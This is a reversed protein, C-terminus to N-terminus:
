IDVAVLTDESLMSTWGYVSEIRRYPHSQLRAWAAELTSASSVVKLGISTGLNFLNKVTQYAIIKKECSRREKQVSRQFFSHEGERLSTFFVM